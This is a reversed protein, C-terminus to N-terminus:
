HLLSKSTNVKTYNEKFKEPNFSLLNKGSVLNAIYAIDFASNYIPTGTLALIKHAKKLKFYLKGYDQNFLKQSSTMHDILKHVEDIIVINDEFNYKVLSASDRFSVLKYRSRDKIGYSKMQIEWNSKLFRPLLIIVKKDPYKEAFGLSLDKLVIMGSIIKPNLGSLNENIIKKDNKILTSRSANNTISLLSFRSLPGFM